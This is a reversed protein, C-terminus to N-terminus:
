GVEILAKVVEHPHDHAFRLAEEARSLPFRHSVLTGLEAQRRRALAVAAPFDVTSRSGYVDLEKATFRRLNLSVSQESVGVLSIRGATAVVEFATEAVVASGTAEVVVAAGDGGTWDHVRDPLEDLNRVLEAAGLEGALRLRSPQLDVAMVDAGLDRAAIVAGLGIPGAGLVVVTDTSEVRPRAVARHSVSLTECLAVIEPALDDAPHCNEVPVTLYQQLGGPRHVGVAQMARCTNHRGHRCPYCSGCSVVPEVAVRTGVSLRGRYGAPLTDVVASIEHGQVLPLETPYSGDFIHLDTGCVGVADVRLLAEGPGPTPAPRHDIRIRGIGETIAVTQM